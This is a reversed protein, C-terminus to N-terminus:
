YSNLPFSWEVPQLNILKEFEKGNISYDDIAVMGISNLYKTLTEICDIFLLNKIKFVNELWCNHITLM